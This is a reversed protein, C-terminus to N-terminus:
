EPQVLDHGEIHVLHFSAGLGVGASDARQVAYSYGATVDFYV